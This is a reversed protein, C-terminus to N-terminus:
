HHIRVGFSATTLDAHSGAFNDTRGIAAFIGINPHVAYEAGAAITFQTKSTDRRAYGFSYANADIIGPKVFVRFADSVQTSLVAHLGYATLDVPDHITMDGYTINATRKGYDNYDFEVAINPTFQAGVTAGFGTAKKDFSDLGTTALNLSSSNASIAAYMPVNDMPSASAAGTFTAAIIAFLAFIRKM